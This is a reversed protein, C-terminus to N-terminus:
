PWACLRLCKSLHINKLHSYEISVMRLVNISGTNGGLLLIPTELAFLLCSFVCNEIYYVVIPKMVSIQM